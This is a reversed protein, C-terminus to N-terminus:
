DFGMNKPMVVRLSAWDSKLDFIDKARVEVEFSKEEDWIHSISIQEGSSYPGIWEESTGDGWNIYYFLDQQEPDTSRITFTLEEEPKGRQPGQIVPTEPPTNDINTEVLPELMSWDGWGYM